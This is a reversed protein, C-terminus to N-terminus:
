EFKRLTGSRKEGLNVIGGVRPTNKRAVHGGAHKMKAVCQFAIAHRAFGPRQQKGDILAHDLTARSAPPLLPVSTGTEAMGPAAEDDHEKVGFLREFLEHHWDGRRKLPMTERDAYVSFVPNTKPHVHHHSGIPSKFTVLLIAHAETRTIGQM